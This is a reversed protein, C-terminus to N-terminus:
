RRVLVAQLQGGRAEQPPVADTVGREAGVAPVRSSVRRPMGVNVEAVVVRAPRTGTRRLSTLRRMVGM